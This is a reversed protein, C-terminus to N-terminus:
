HEDVLGRLGTRRSIYAAARVMQAPAVSLCSQMTALRYNASAQGEGAQIAQLVYDRDAPPLMGARDDMMRVFGARDLKLPWRQCLMALRAAAVTDVLADHRQVLWESVHGQDATAPVMVGSAFALALLARGFM